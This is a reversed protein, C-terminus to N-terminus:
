GSVGQSSYANPNEVGIARPKNAAIEKGDVMIDTPPPHADTAYAWDIGM